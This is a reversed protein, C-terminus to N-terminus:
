RLVFTVTFDGDEVEGFSTVIFYYTGTEALRVDSIAPQFNGGSDDDEVLLEGEATRLELAADFDSEIFISVQDGNEAEFTFLRENEDNLTQSMVAGNEISVADDTLGVILTVRYAGTQNPDFSRIVICYTDDQPLTLLRLFPNGEGGSEDDSAIINGASDEVNLYTDFLASVRVSIVDGRLGDFCHVGEGAIPLNATVTQGSVLSQDSSGENGLEGESITLTYRGEDASSFGDLDILYTDDTQLTFGDLRPDNSDDSDDLTTLPVNGAATSYLSIRSDFEADVVISIQEDALGVFEFRVVEGSQLEGEVTDGIAIRHPGEGRLLSAEEAVVEGDDTLKARANLASVSVWAVEGNLDVQYYDGTENIGTIRFTGGTVIRVLEADPSPAARFRTEGQVVLEGALPEVVVPVVTAPAVAAQPIYEITCVVQQAPCTGVVDRGNTVTILYPQQFVTDFWFPISLREIHVNNIPVNQQCEPPVPQRSLSQQFHFCAPVVVRDFPFGQFSPFENIPRTIVQDGATMEFTLGELSLIGEDGPLYVTLTEGANRLIVMSVPEIVGDDQAAAGSVLAVLLVCIMFVVSRVRILAVSM